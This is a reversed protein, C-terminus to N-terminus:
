LTHICGPLNVWGITKFRRILHIIGEAWGNCIVKTLVVQERRRGRWPVVHQQHTYMAGLSWTLLDHHLVQAVPQVVDGVQQLVSAVVDQHHFPSILVDGAAGEM